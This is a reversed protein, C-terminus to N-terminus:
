CHLYQLRASFWRYSAQRFSIIKRTEPLPVCTDLMRCSNREYFPDPRVDLMWAGPFPTESCPNHYFSDSHFRGGDAAPLPVHQWYSEAYRNWSKCRNCTYFSNSVVGTM